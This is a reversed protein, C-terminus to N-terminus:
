YSYTRNRDAMPSVRYDNNPPPNANTFPHGIIRIYDASLSHRYALFRLGCLRAGVLSQPREETKTSESSMFIASHTQLRRRGSTVYNM